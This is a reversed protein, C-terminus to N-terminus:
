LKPVDRRILRRAPGVGQLQAPLEGGVGKGVSDGVDDGVADGVDDGVGTLPLSTPVSRLSKAVALPLNDVLVNAETPSPAFLKRDAPNDGARAGVYRNRWLKFPPAPVDM